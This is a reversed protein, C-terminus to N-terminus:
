HSQYEEPPPLIIPKYALAKKVIEEPTLEPKTNYILRSAEPDPVNQLFLDLALDLEEETEFNAECIDKVLEILEKKSLKSM